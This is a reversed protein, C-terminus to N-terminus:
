VATPVVVATAVLGAMSVPVATAVPVAPPVPVATAVLVVAAVLTAAGVSIAEGVAITAGGVAIIVTDGGCTGLVPASPKGVVPLASSMPMQHHSSLAARSLRIPPM